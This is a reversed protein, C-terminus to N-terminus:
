DLSERRSEIYKDLAINLLHDISRNDKIALIELLELAQADLTTTVLTTNRRLVEM